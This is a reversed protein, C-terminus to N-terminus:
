NLIKELLKMLITRYDFGSNRVKLMGKDTLDKLTELNNKYYKIKKILTGLNDYFIVENDEFFSATEINRETLLATGCAPIEFTRTTHLEPFRKSIFGISFLSSSILRSYDHGILSPGVYELYPNSSNRSVFKIWKYGALKVHIKNDILNQIVNSRATECLGIFVVCNNKNEFEYFPKHIQNDFGQTTLLLRYEPIYGLYQEREFSKTTILFDYYPISKRFHISFNHKFATDPTFHVLNTTRIKLSQTTRETIYVGKDVWILEYKDGEIQSLIYNNILRILPGRKYRFGISQSFRSQKKFPINTDVLKTDWDKLISRLNDARM